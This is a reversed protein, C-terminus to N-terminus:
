MTTLTLVRYYTDTSYNNYNDTYKIYNDTLKKKYNKYNQQLQGSNTTISQLLQHVAPQIDSDPLDQFRGDRCLNQKTERHRDILLHQSPERYELNSSCAEQAAGVGM